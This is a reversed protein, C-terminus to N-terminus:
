FDQAPLPPHNSTGDHMLDPHIEEPPADVPQPMGGQQPMAESAPAQPEGEVVEEGGAQEDDFLTLELNSEPTGIVISRDGLSLVRWAELPQGERLYLVEGTTAQRVAAVRGEPGAAIAVLEFDDASPGTAAFPMEPPMEPPPEPPPPPEALIEQPRPARGPNFLPSELTAAFSAADLMELPNLRAGGGTDTPEAPPAQDLAAVPERGPPEPSGSRDLLLVLGLLLAVSALLILRRNM